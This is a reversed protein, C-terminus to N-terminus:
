NLALVCPLTRPSALRLLSYGVGSAGTFFTPDFLGGLMEKRWQFSGAKDRRVLAERALEEAARRLEGDGLTEAAFLLSEARGLMGCCLHDVPEPPASRAIELGLALEARIEPTALVERAALRSVAEGAAGLCWGASYRAANTSKPDRWGKRESSYLTREFAFGEDASEVLSPEGTQQYLRLLAYCIGAAGHSFGGLPPLGPLSRWARPGGSFSQQRDLLNRACDAAAQLPSCGGVSVEPAERNLALLALIAGASGYLVDCASDAHIREPTMWAALIQSEGLLAPEGVLKGIQLLSYILSGLGILGGIGLRSLREAGNPDVTIEALKRRM